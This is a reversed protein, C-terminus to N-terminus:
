LYYSAEVAANWISVLPRGGAFLAQAPVLEAPCMLGHSVRLLNRSNLRLGGLWWGWCARIAIM